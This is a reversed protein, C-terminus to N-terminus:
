DSLPPKPPLPVSEGILSATDKAKRALNQLEAAASAFGRGGEGMAEVAASLALLNSQFVIGELVANPSVTM